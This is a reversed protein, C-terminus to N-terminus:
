KKIISLKFGDDSNERKLRYRGCTCGYKGLPTTFGLNFGYQELLKKTIDVRIDDLWISHLALENKGQPEYSDLMLPASIALARILDDIKDNDDELEEVTYEMTDNHLVYNIYIYEGINNSKEILAKYKEKDPDESLYESYEAEFDVIMQKIDEDFDKYTLKSSTQILRHPLEEVNM